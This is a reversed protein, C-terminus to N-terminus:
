NRLPIEVEIARRQAHLSEWVFDGQNWIAAGVQVQSHRAKDLEVQSCKTAGQQVQTLALAVLNPALVRWGYKWQCIELKAECVIIGEASVIDREKSQGKTAQLKLDQQTDTPGDM